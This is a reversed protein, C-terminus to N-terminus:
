AQSMEVMAHFGASTLSYGGKCEEAVLFGDRVLNAISQSYQEIEVTSLCLMKGTTMLYRKFISLVKNEDHSLVLQTATEGPSTKRHERKVRKRAAKERKEVERQRKAITNRDKAM